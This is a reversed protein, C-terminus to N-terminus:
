SPSVRLRIQFLSSLSRQLEEPDISFDNFGCDNGAAASRRATSGVLYHYPQHLIDAIAWYM